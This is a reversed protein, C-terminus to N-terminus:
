QESKARLEREPRGPRGARGGPGRSEEERHGPPWNDRPGADTGIQHGSRMVHGVADRRFRNWAGPM